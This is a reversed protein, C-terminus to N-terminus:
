NQFANRTNTKLPKFRGRNPLVYTTNTKLSKFRGRNPLAYTTNTKLSKFRGRNQFTNTANTKLHSLETPEYALFIIRREYTRYMKKQKQGM